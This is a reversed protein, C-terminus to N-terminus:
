YKRNMLGLCQEDTVAPSAVPSIYETSSNLCQPQQSRIGLLYNTYAQTRIEKTNATDYKTVARAVYLNGQGVHRVFLLKKETYHFWCSASKMWYVLFGCGRCTELMVQEDEPPAECVANPISRAHLTLQSHWSAVIATESFDHCLWSVYARLIGFATQSAGGSSSCSISSVHLPEQNEIFQIFFADHQNWQVSVSRHVTLL